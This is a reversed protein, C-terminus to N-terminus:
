MELLVQVSSVERQPRVMLWEFPQRSHRIRMSPPTPPNIHQLVEAKLYDVSWSHPMCISIGQTPIRHSLSHIIFIEMLFDLIIRVCLMFHGLCNLFYQGNSMALMQLPKPVPPMQPSKSFMALTTEFDVM